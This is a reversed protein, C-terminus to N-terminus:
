RSGQRWAHCRQGKGVMRCAPGQGRARRGHPQARLNEVRILGLGKDAGAPGANNMDVCADAPFAMAQNRRRGLRAPGDDAGFMQGPQQGIGPLDRGIGPGAANHIRYDRNRLRRALAPAGGQVAHLAGMNRDMGHGVAGRGKGRLMAAAISHPQQAHAAKGRLFQVARQQHGQGAQM